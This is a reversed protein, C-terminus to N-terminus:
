RVRRLREVQSAVITDRQVYVRKLQRVDELTWGMIDAIEQDSFQAEVLKTAYTNRLQHLTLGIGLTISLKNVLDALGKATMSRGRRGTMITRQLGLKSKAQRMRLESLFATAESLLPIIVLHKGRSKSTAWEIHDGKWADWTLRALDTRRLGTHLALLFADRQTADAHALFVEQSAEGWPEKTENERYARPVNECPNRLLNGCRVAHGLVVSFANLANDAQKPSAGALEAHWAIIDGRFRRDEIDKIPARGFAARVKRLHNRHDEQTRKARKQFEASDLYDLIFQACDGEPRGHQHAQIAREFAAKFKPPWPTGIPGGDNIWFCQGGTKPYRYYVRKTGDALRKHTTHFKEKM